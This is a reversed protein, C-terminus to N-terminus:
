SGLALAAMLLTPLYLTLREWLRSLRHMM